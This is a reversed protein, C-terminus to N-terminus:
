CAERHLFTAALRDIHKGVPTYSVAISFVFAGLGTLVAETYEGPYHSRHVIADAVFTFVGLFASSTWRNAFYRAYRTFSIGLLPFVALLGTKGATALHAPTLGLLHGQVMLVLCVAGAEVGKHGFLVLRFQHRDHFLRRLNMTALASKGCLSRSARPHVLHSPRRRRLRHRHTTGSRRNARDPSRSSQVRLDTWEGRLRQWPRDVAVSEGGRQAFPRLDTLTGDNGVLAAYTVDESESSVYVRQGPLASIFGYTDLNDSFRWGSSEAPGQQFVRGAPLFLSGDPSVYEMEKATSVDRAFMEALTTYTFTNFDLQNAFEGNNWYNVPLAALADPHPKAERPVIVTIDREPSGPRFSYVTGEPGASSLVLLDGAKDFALNVPDLPNDREVTLGESLSWGYIRQEHHDVFYLKGASDVAAGSISFFGDELKQM